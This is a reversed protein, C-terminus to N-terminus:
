RLDLFARPSLLRVGQYVSVEQLRKDGTVLYDSQASAATALVLDDEPHSAVGVVTVTLSVRTAEQQLLGFADAIEPDTLRQRFYPQALTRRLEILLIESVILQFAGSRWARIIAGPTSELRYRGVFGSALVNTDLVASSM